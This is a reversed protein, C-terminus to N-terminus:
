VFVRTSGNEFHHSGTAPELYMSVNMSWLPLNDRQVLKFYVKSEEIGAQVAAKFKINNVFLM